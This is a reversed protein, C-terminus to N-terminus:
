DNLKLHLKSLLDVDPSQRAQKKFRSMLNLRSSGSGSGSGSIRTVEIDKIKRHLM